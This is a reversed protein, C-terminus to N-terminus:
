GAAPLGGIRAAVELYRVEEALAAASARLAREERRLDDVQELLAARRRGTGATRLAADLAAARHALRDADSAACAAM